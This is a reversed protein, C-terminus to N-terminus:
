PAGKRNLTEGLRRHIEVRVARPFGCVMNAALEHRERDTLARFSKVTAAERDRDEKSLIAISRNLNASERILAPSANGEAIAVDILGQLVKSQNM